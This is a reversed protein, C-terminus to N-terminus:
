FIFLDVTLFKFSISIIKVCLCYYGHIFEMGSSGVYLSLGPSEIASPFPLTWSASDSSVGALVSIVLKHPVCPFM